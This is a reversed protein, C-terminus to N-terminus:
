KPLVLKELLLLQEWQATTPKIFTRVSKIQDFADQLTLGTSMLYAIIMTPGRGEGHRCHIYIKGGLGVEKAIFAIGEKLQQITPALTDPTPLHLVKLEPSRKYVSPLTLRMSVIGTIEWRRLQSLGQSYIQGGLYLQPTIQSFRVTPAGTVHRWGQDFFRQSQLFGSLLKSKLWEWASPHTQPILPTNM